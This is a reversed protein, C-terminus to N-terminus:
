NRFRQKVSIYSSLDKCLNCIELGYIIMDEHEEIRVVQGTLNLVHGLDEFYVSLKDGMHFNLEKKRDTIAFGSLSVDKILVQETGHGEMRLSALQSVGVRFSSRRNYNMGESTTQLIYENKYTVIKVNRWIVPISDNDYEMNIRVNNFVLPKASPFDLSILAINEKLIKKISADLQMDDTENSVHLIISSGEKLESLKLGM